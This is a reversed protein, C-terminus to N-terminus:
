APFSATHLVLACCLHPYTPSLPTSSSLRTAVTASARSEAPKKGQGRESASPISTARTDTSPGATITSSGATKAEPTAVSTSVQGARPNNDGVGPLETDNGPHGAPYAGYGKEFIPHDPAHGKAPVQSREKGPMSPHEASRKWYQYISGFTVVPEGAGHGRDDTLDGRNHAILPGHGLKSSCGLGPPYDLSPNDRRHAHLVRGRTRGQAWRNDELCERYCRRHM